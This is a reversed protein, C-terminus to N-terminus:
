QIQQLVLMNTRTKESEGTLSYGDSRPSLSNPGSGLSYDCSADKRLVLRLRRLLDDITVTFQCFWQNKSTRKKGVTVTVAPRSEEGFYLNCRTDHNASGPLSCTFLVHEGIFHHLSM